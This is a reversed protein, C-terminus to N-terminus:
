GFSIRAPTRKSTFKRLSFLLLSLPLFSLLDKNVFKHSIIENVLRLVPFFASQALIRSTLSFATPKINNLNGWYTYIVIM